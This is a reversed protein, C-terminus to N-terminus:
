MLSSKSPRVQQEKALDENESLMNGSVQIVPVRRRALLIENMQAMQLLLQDIKKDKERIVLMLSEKSSSGRQMRRRWWILVQRQLISVLVMAAVGGATWALLWVGVKCTVYKRNQNQLRQDDDQPPTVPLDEHNGPPFVSTESYFDDKITVPNEHDVILNATVTSFPSQVHEWDALEESVQDNEM